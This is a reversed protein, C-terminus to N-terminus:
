DRGCRTVAAQDSAKLWLDSLQQEASSLYVVTFKM